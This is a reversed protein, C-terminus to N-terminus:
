SVVYDLGVDVGEVVVVISGVFDLGAHLSELVPQASSSRNFQAVIHMLPRLIHKYLGHNIFDLSAPQSTLGKKEMETDILFFM